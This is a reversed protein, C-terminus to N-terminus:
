DAKILQTFKFKLQQGPSTGDLPSPNLEGFGQLCSSQCSTRHTHIVQEMEKGKSHLSDPLMAKSIAQNSVPRTQVHTTGFYIIDRKWLPSSSFFM